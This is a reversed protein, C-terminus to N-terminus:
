ATDRQRRFKIAIPHENLYWKKTYFNKKDNGPNKILIQAINRLDDIDKVSRLLALFDGILESRGMFTTHVEQRVKANASLIAPVLSSLQISSSQIGDNIIKHALEEPMNKNKMLFRQLSGNLVDYLEEQISHPTAPNESISRLTELFDNPAQMAVDFLEQSQDATLYENRGLVKGLRTADLHETELADRMMQFGELIEEPVDTAGLRSIKHRIKEADSLAEFDATNGLKIAHNKAVKMIDDYASGLHNKLEDNSIRQDKANYIEPYLQGSPLFIVAIKSMADQNDAIKDIVFYFRLNQSSYSKFYNSSKVASICWSTGKGYYCASGESKPSVVVFQSDEYVNDADSKVQKKLSTKSEGTEELASRLQGLTKYFHIDKNSMRNKAGHFEATLQIIEDAPEGKKILQSTQWNLYALSGSPDEDAFKRIASEFEPDVRRLVNELRGETLITRIFSRLTGSFM